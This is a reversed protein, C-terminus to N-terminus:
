SGSGRTGGKPPNVALGVCGATIGLIVMGVILSFFGGSIEKLALDDIARIENKKCTM